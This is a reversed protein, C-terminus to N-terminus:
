RKGAATMAGGLLGQLWLVGLWTWFTYAIGLNFVANLAYITLFPALIIIALLLLIFVGKEM